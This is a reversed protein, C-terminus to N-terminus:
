TSPPINFDMLQQQLKEVLQYLGNLENDRAEIQVNLNIIEAELNQFKGMLVSYDVSLREVNAREQLVTDEAIAIRDQLCRFISNVRHTNDIGRGNGEM